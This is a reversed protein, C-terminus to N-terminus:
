SSPALNQCVSQIMEGIEVDSATARVSVLETQPKTGGFAFRGHTRCRVQCSIEGDKRMIDILEVEREFRRKGVGISQRYRDMGDLFDAQVQTYPKSIATNRKAAAYDLAAVVSAGLATADSLHVQLRQLLADEPFTVATKITPLILGFGDM